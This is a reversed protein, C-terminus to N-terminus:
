QAHVQVLRRTDQRTGLRTVNVESKEFFVARFELGFASNSFGVKLDQNGLYRYRLERFTLPLRM